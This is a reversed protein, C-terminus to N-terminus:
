INEFNDHLDFILQSVQYNCGDMPKTCQDPQNIAISKVTIWGASPDYFNHQATATLATNPQLLLAQAQAQYTNPDLYAITTTHPPRHKFTNLDFNACSPSIITPHPQPETEKDKHPTSPSPIWFKPPISVLEVEDGGPKYSPEFQTSIFINLLWTSISTGVFNYHEYM